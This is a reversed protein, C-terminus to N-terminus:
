VGGRGDRYDETSTQRGMTYLSSFVGRLSYRHQQVYCSGDKWVEVLQVTPRETGKLTDIPLTFLPTLLMNVGHAYATIVYKEILDWHNESSVELGYYEAICDAYFWETHILKQDPLMAEIVELEFTEGALEEGSDNGFILRIPYLGEQIGGDVHVTIWISRWQNPVIKIGESERMPYLPDPFLGPTSRLIDEDPDGYCPLESPALGVTRITIQDALPSEIHLLINKLAEVVGRVRYAVQFAYTEQQLASARCFPLETLEQDPFVKALSSLCRTELSFVM